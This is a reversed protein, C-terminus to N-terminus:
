YKDIFTRLMTKLADKQNETLKRYYELLTTEDDSTVVYEGARERVANTLFMEGKGNMLWEPNVRANRKLNELAEYKPKSRDNFWQGAAAKSVGALKGIATKNVGLATKLTNLRDIFDTQRM